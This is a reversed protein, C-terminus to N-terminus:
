IKWGVIVALNFKSTIKPEDEFSSLEEEAIGDNPDDQDLSYIIYVKVFPIIIVRISM